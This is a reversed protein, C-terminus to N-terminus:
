SNKIEGLLERYLGYNEEDFNVFVVKDIGPVDANKVAEVAIRAAEKKPYGYVGTSINPFAVTKLGLDAALKLSNRYCNSLKEAEGTGGGNWIPGVTHIIKTANLNGASTAVAEGANLPGREDIIEKCERGIAEGGARHIAGDVGGGGALSRNAANVIADVHLKTIDGKHIELKMPDNHKLHM